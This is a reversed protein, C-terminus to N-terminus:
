ALTTGCGECRAADNAAHMTAHCVPCDAAGSARASQWTADLLEELTPRGGGAPGERGAPRALRGDAPRPSGFPLTPADLLASSM